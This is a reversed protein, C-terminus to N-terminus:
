KIVPFAEPNAGSVAWKLRQCISDDGARWHNWAKILLAIKVPIPIKQDQNPKSLMYKLHYMSNFENINMRKYESMPLSLTYIFSRAMNPDLTKTIHYFAALTSHPIDCKHYYTMTFNFSDLIDPNANFFKILRNNEVEYKTTFYNLAGSDYRYLTKITASLSTYNRHGLGQLIKDFSLKKKTDINLDNGIRILFTKLAVQSDRCGLLRHQGDKVLGKSDIAISDGNYRWEGSKMSNSHRTVENASVKRFNENDQDMLESAIDPTITVMDDETLANVCVGAITIEKM